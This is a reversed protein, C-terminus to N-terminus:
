EKCEGLIVGLFFPPVVAVCKEIKSVNDIKNGASDIYIRRKNEVFLSANEHTSGDCCEVKLKVAILQRTM